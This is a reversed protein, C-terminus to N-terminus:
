MAYDNFVFQYVLFNKFHEPYIWFLFLEKNNMFATTDYHNFLSNESSNEFAM